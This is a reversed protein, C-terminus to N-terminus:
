VKHRSNSKAPVLRHVKNSTAPASEPKRDRPRASPEDQITLKGGAAFFGRIMLDLSVGATGAEIKAVRSQSSHIRAALEAQTLNHTERLRRLRRSIAVRLEVIQNEEESLGLFDKVSVFQHGAAELSDRKEKKM